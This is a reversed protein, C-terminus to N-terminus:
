FLSHPSHWSKGRNLSMQFSNSQMRLMLVLFGVKIFWGQCPLLTEKASNRGSFDSKSRYLPIKISFFGIQWIEFSLCTKVIHELLYGLIYFSEQNARSEYRTHLWIQSFWKQIIVVKVVDCFEEFFGQM